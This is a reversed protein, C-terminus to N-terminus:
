AKRGGVVLCAIGGVLIVVGVVPPVWVNHTKDADAHIPGLDLVREKKTYTFGQYVLAVVGVIILIVGALFTGKM